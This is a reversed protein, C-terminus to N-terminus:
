STAHVARLILDTAAAPHSIMSLHSAKVTVIHSHARKAMFLQEAPLIVHDVTGLLYWSPITQWAPASSKDTIAGVAIPRQTAQLEAAQGAPLDNAFCAAFGPYTGDPGAKLYADVDGALLGPDQAFNFVTTPDGGVCSGPNMALLDGLTEGAKPAFADVYVLAKVNANGTAADTIVAGGYSHGALVIPGTITHLFSALYASDTALGRLPNPPAVVTYGDRQLRTVVGSWSSADAWAGHVLVITPKPASPHSPGNNAYAIAPVLTLGAVAVVAVLVSWRGMRRKAPTLPM